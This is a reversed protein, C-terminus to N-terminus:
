NLLNCIQGGPGKGKKINKFLFSSIHSKRHLLLIHFIANQSVSMSSKFYKQGSETLRTVFMGTLHSADTSM